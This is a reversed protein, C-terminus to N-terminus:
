LSSSLADFIYIHACTHVHSRENCDIRTFVNAHLSFFHPLINLLSFVHCLINLVSALTSFICCFITPYATPKVKAYSM